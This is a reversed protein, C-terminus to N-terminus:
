FMNIIDTITNLTKGNKSLSNEKQEQGQLAQICTTVIDPVLEISQIM